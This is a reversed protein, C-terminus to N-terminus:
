IIVGLLVTVLFFQSDWLSGRHSVATREYRYKNKMHTNRIKILSQLNQYKASIQDPETEASQQEAKEEGCLPWVDSDRPKYMGFMLLGLLFLGLIGCYM